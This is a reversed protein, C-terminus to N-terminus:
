GAPCPARAKSGIGADPPLREFAIPSGYFRSALVSVPKPDGSTLFRLPAPIRQRDARFEPHRRLYQGLSGAVLDPQSLIETDNPLYQAFLGAVLPYHTCGLLVTDLRDGHLRDKLARVHGRVMPRIETDPLGHEIAAALRPCAQQIVRLGPARKAIEHPYAQSRVTLRTAFIGITRPEPRLDPPPEESLWAVRTIAEVMPVLVGLVRREPHHRPLWHQQIRRLAVAAATNCALVVLRCGRDFLHSVGAVTLDFVEAPERTGYPANAHDGLYLFPQDPHAEALARLITLGGHGSDFVGIM